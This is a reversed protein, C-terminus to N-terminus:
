DLFTVTHNQYQRGSYDFQANFKKGSFIWPLFYHDGVQFRELPLNNIEVWELEGEEPKCVPAGTFSRAIFFYVLFYSDPNPNGKFHIEGIPELEGLKIGAEEQIERRACAVSDDNDISEFKGGLGNLKGFHPAYPKKGLIALFKGEHIVYVLVAKTM